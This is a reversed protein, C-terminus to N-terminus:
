LNNIIAVIVINTARITKQANAITVATATKEAIVNKETKEVSAIKV